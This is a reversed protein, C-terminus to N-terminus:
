KSHSTESYSAESHPVGRTSIQKFIDKEILNPHLLIYELLALHIMFPQHPKIEELINFVKSTLSNCNQRKLLLKFDEYAKQFDLIRLEELFLNVLQKIEQMKWFSVKGIYVEGNRPVDVIKLVVEQNIREFIYKKELDWLPNQCINQFTLCNAFMGEKELFSLWEYESFQIVQNNRTSCIKIVVQFGKSPSVGISLYKSHSRNLFFVKEVLLNENIFRQSCEATQVSM